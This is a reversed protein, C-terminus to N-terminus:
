LHTLWPTVASAKSISELRHFVDKKVDLNEVIAEIVLDCNALHTLDAHWQIRQLIQQASEASLKGKEVLKNMTSQLLHAAKELAVENTDIVIVSHGSQAAVQAIGSGM